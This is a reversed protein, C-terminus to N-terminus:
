FLINYIRELKRYLIKLDLLKEGFKDNEDKLITIYGNKVMNNSDISNYWLKRSIIDEEFCLLIQNKFNLATQDPDLADCQIKKIRLIKDDDDIIGTSKTAEYSISRDIISEYYPYLKEVFKKNEKFNKKELYDRYEYESLQIGEVNYYVRDTQNYNNTNTQLLENTQGRKYEDNKTKTSDYDQLIKDTKNSLSGLYYSICLLSLLCVFSILWLPKKSWKKDKISINKSTNEMNKSENEIM